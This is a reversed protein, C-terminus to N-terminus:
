LFLLALGMFVALPLFLVLRKRSWPGPPQTEIKADTESM